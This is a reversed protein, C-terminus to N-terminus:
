IITEPNVLEITVLNLHNYQSKTLAFIASYKISNADDEVYKIAQNFRILRELGDLSIIGFARCRAFNMDFCGYEVYGIVTDNAENKDIFNELNEIKMFKIITSSKQTNPLLIKDMKKPKGKLYKLVIQVFSDISSSQTENVFKKITLLNYNQDILEQIFKQNRVIHIKQGNLLPYNILTSRNSICDLYGINPFFSSSFNLTMVELDRIGGVLHAMNFNISNWVKRLIQRPVIITLSEISNSIIIRKIAISEENPRNIKTLFEEWGDLKIQNKIDFFQFQDFPVGELQFKSLVKNKIRKLSEKGFLQIQSCELIEYSMQHNENFKSILEECVLIHIMLLFKKGRNMKIIRCPGILCDPYKGPQHLHITLINGDPIDRLFENDEASCFESIHDCFNSNEILVFKVFPLYFATYGKTLNRYLIRQNKVNNKYPVFQNWCFVLKFRKAFWVHLDSKRPDKSRKKWHRKRIKKRKKLNKIDNEKILEQISKPLRKPNNSAARRRMHRPIRQLNRRCQKTKCQKKLHNIEVLHSQILNYLSIENSSSVQSM